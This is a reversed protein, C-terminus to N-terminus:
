LREFESCGTEPCGQYERQRRASVKTTAKGHIPCVWGGAEAAAVVNFAVAPGNSTEIPTFTAAKAEEQLRALRADFPEGNSDAGAEEQAKLMIARKTDRAKAVSAVEAMPVEPEPKGKAKDAHRRDAEKELLKATIAAEKEADGAVAVPDGALLRLADIVGTLADRQITLDAITKLLVETPKDYPFSAPTDPLAAPPATLISAGNKEGPLASLKPKADKSRPTSAVVESTMAALVSVGGTASGM